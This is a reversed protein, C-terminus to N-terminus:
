WESLVGQRRVRDMLVPVVMAFIATNVLIHILSAAIGSLLLAPWVAPKFGSAIFSAVSVAVSYGVTYALGTGGLILRRRIPREELLFRSVMAGWVALVAYCCIQAVLLPPYALGSGIPNFISFLAAGCIGIFIGKRLGFLYGGLFIAASILELNPVPALLLGVAATMATYVAVITMHWTQLKPM